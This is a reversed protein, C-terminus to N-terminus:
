NHLRTVTPFSLSRQLDGWQDLSSYLIVSPTPLDWAALLLYLVLVTSLVLSPLRIGKRPLTSPATLGSSQWPELLLRSGLLQFVYGAVPRGPPLAKSFRSRCACCLLAAPSTTM